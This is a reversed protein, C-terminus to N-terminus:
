LFVSFDTGFGGWLNTRVAPKALIQLFIKLRFIM